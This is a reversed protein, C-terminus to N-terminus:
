GDVVPRTKLTDLTTLDMSELISEVSNTDDELRELRHNQQESLKGNAQFHKLRPYRGALLTGWNVRLDLIEQDWHVPEGNHFDLIDALQTELMTLDLDGGPIGEEDTYVEIGTRLQSAPNDRFRSMLLADSALVPKNVPLLLPDERCLLQDRSMRIFTHQGEMGPKTCRLGVGFSELHEEQFMYGLYRARRNIVFDDPTAGPLHFDISRIYDRVIHIQEDTLDMDQYLARM